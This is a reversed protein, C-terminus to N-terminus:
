KNDLQLFSHVFLVHISYMYGAINHLQNNQVTFGQKDTDHYVIWPPM